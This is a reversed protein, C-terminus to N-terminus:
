THSIISYGETRNTKLAPNRENKEGQTSGNIGDYRLIRPLAPPIATEEVSLLGSLLFRKIRNITVRLKIRPNVATKIIKLM